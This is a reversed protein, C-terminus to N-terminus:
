RAARRKHHAKGKPAKKHAKVCKTKGGQRVKHKGKPCPNAGKPNAPGTYSSSSPTPLQPPPPPSQCAEGECPPKPTPYEFGGGVRADYLDVSGPDPPVLSSETNFFVNQGDPSAAWFESEHSSQGSSILYLCGDNEAFFNADAENCSGSGPAEWEYVDQAGNADAPLLADNANFFIRKGDGSVVNSVNLPHEPTPIWAAASVKTPPAGSLSEYPRVMERGQPRAGSPNCSICTLENSAADYSYVEVSPQGSEADRNDFESLPARSEFVLKAGDPTVRTARQYPETSDLDYPKASAGPELAGVDGELLTGVLSKTGAQDFYLNPQGAVAGSALAEESVFYVRSLDESAGAVGTAESAVERRPAEGAEQKALDFVVLKHKGLLTEEEYLARSGDASAAWFFASGIGSIPLTCAVTANNSCENAVIGQEPHLRLYLKSGSSSNLSWYVHSGDESVAGDLNSGSGVGSAEEAPRGSPLVSVLHNEGGFRDYIRAMEGGSKVSVAPTAPSPAPSTARNASVKTVAGSANTGTVACQFVAPTAVDAASVLYTSATAGAIAAGNRYWQFSFSPTGEWFAANPNCTLTQGGPGGVTLAPGEPQPIGGPAIPPSIAVGDARAIVSAPNSVQTAGANENIAFVECQLATGRDAAVPEYLPATAGAISVGNRLWQYSITKATTAGIRCDQLLPATSRFVAHSGDKSIGQLSNFDVYIKGADQPLPADTITELSGVPGCNNRRYLNPVGNQGDPLFAPTQYDIAWASCLDASFGLLERNLGFAGSCCNHGVIPPHIGASTWGGAGRSGLYENSAVSTPAGAFSAQLATYSISNGGPGVQIYGGPDGANALGTVIDGGNKQVPSVMEYARCDPLKASPGTRFAENPCPGVPGESRYTAFAHPTASEASGSSNTAVLQWRYATGPTLGTLNASVAHEGRDGDKGVAITPTSQAGSFGGAEFASKTTYEFHYNSAFGEPNILAKLTAEGSAVSITREESIVPPGLTKFEEDAGTELEEGVKALLRFHYTTGKTLSGLQAQVPVPETGSGIESAEPDCEAVEGYATTEGWEFFCESVALGSPIVTGTLRASTEEIDEAPGTRAKFCGIPNTGYARIFADSESPNSAYLNGPAKSGPCLNTALGTSQSSFEGKGFEDIVKGAQDFEVIPERPVGSPEKATPPGFLYVHEASDVAVATPVPNEFPGLKLLPFGGPPTIDEGSPSLKHTKNGYIAYLDGAADVTLSQVSGSIAIEGQYVGEADFKQIRGVDGVYVIDDAVTATGKEDVAVFDGVEWEGFEGANGNGSAAPAVKCTDAPFGPRPCVNGGSTENVGGGIMLLFNGKSDFKQVRHNNRDNVFLDGASDVAPGHVGNFQGIGSGSIGAQCESTETCTQLEAAGTDVGWGWAKVFQGLANFEDIRFNDQDAIFVHGNRPDAAIGRPISCQGAGTGTECWRAPFESSTEPFASASGTSLFLAALLLGAAL